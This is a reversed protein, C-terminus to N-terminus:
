GRWAAFQESPPLTRLVLMENFILTRTAFECNLLSRLKVVYVILVINSCDIVDVAYHRYVRVWKDITGRNVNKDVDNINEMEQKDRDDRTEDKGVFSKSLPFAAWFVM